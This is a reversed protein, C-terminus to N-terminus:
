EADICGNAAVCPFSASQGGPTAARATLAPTAGHHDAPTANTLPASERPAVAAEARALMRRAWYLTFLAASWNVIVLGWWVGDVGLGTLTTMAWFLPFPAAVQRYLGVWMIMAPKKLGQLVSNAQNMVVYSYFTLAQIYLYRLGISIVEQNDTFLGILRSAFILVPTLIGVMVVLGMKLSTVYSERVRDLRGAGNNQGVMTALAINLGITPILAIQEIRLASGYAAVANTGFRAVFYTIVFGGLAITAMNLASPIGQSAIERWYDLRPWTMSIRPRSGMGGARLMRLALYVSGFAQILITAGAIGAVGMAPVIQVSGIGFGLMFLPDLGVNVVFGFILFNRYSRTDGRATLGANFVANLIFFISGAVLVRSYSLATDMLGPAAGMFRFIPGLSLLIPGILVVAVFIALSLGQAQYREARDTEGAGLANAILASTGSSIGMGTALLILFVPFSLSLAALADTSIRGGWYTDVVNYLTNFLFGVSAPVAMTILNRSIKGGTIDLDTSM